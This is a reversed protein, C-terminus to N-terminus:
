PAGNPLCANGDLLEDIGALSSGGRVGMGLLLGVM